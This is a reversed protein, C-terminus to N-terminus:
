LFKSRMKYIPKFLSSLFNLIPTVVLKKVFNQFRHSQVMVGVVDHSFKYYIWEYASVFFAGIRTRKMDDDRIHRLFYVKLANTSLNGENVEVFMCCNKKKPPPKDGEPDEFAKWWEKNKLQILKQIWEDCCLKCETLAKEQGIIWDM